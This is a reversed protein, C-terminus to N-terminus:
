ATRISLQEFICLSYSITRSLIPICPNTIYKWSQRYINENENENENENKNENKNESESESCLRIFYISHKDRRFNNGVLKGLRSSNRAFVLTKERERQQLFNIEKLVM